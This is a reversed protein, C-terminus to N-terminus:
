ESVGAWPDTDFLVTWGDIRSTSIYHCMAM